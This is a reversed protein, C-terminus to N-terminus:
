GRGGRRIVIRGTGVYMSRAMAGPPFANVEFLYNGDMRPNRVPGWEVTVVNGPGVPPDFLVSIVQESVRASVPLDRAPYQPAQVYPQTPIFARVQSPNPLNLGFPGYETPLGIDLRALPEDLSGPAEVAFQYYAPYDEITVQSVASRLLRLPGNFATEGSSFQIAAAAGAGFLSACAASVILYKGLSM